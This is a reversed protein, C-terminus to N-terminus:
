WVASFMGSYLSHLDCFSYVLSFQFLPRMRIAAVIWILGKNKINGKERICFFKLWKEIGRSWNRRKWILFIGTLTIPLERSPMCATRPILTFTNIPFKWLITWHGFDRIRRTPCFNKKSTRAKIITRRQPPPCWSSTRIQKLLM